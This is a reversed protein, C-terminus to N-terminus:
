TRACMFSSKAAATMMVPNAMADQQQMHAEGM